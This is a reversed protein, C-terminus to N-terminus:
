LFWLFPATSLLFCLAPPPLTLITGLSGERMSGLFNLLARVGLGEGMPHSLTAKYPYAGRLAVSYKPRSSPVAKM